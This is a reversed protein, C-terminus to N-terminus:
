LEIYDLVFHVLDDYLKNDIFEGGTILHKAKSYDRWDKSGRNIGNAKLLRELEQRSRINPAKSKM